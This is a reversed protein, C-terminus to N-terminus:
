VCVEDEVRLERGMTGGKLLVEAARWIVLERAMTRVSGLDMEHVGLERYYARLAEETKRAGGDVVKIEGRGIAAHVLAGVAQMSQAYLILEDTLKIKPGGSRAVFLASAESSSAFCPSAFGRVGGDLMSMSASKIAYCIGHHNKITRTALLVSGPISAAMLADLMGNDKYQVHVRPTQVDAYGLQVHVRPTQVGDYALQRALLCFLLEDDLLPPSGEAALAGALLWKKVVEMGVSRPGGREVLQDLNM